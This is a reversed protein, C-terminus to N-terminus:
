EVYHTIISLVNLLHYQKKQRLIISHGNRPWGEYPCGKHNAHNIHETDRSSRPGVLSAGVCVNTGRYVVPM